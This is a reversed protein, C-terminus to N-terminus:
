RRWAQSSDDPEAFRLIQAYLSPVCLLSTVREREIVRVLALPDRAEDDTPIVLTDGMPLAWFLGAVSSDFALSPLLLFRGPRVGLEGYAQLRAATSTRLNEQSVVVGKPRGTSGSTYLLYAPDAPIRPIDGLAVDRTMESEPGDIRVTAWDGEPLSTALESTTVVASVGADDLVDRNREAPYTPDLPM